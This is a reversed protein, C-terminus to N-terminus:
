CGIVHIRRTLLLDDLGVRIRLWRRRYRQDHLDRGRRRRPAGGLGLLGGLREVAHHRLLRLQVVHRQRLELHGDALRRLDASPSREATCSAAPVTCSTSASTTGAGGPGTANIACNEGGPGVPIMATGSCPVPGSAETTGGCVYDCSTANTCSWSVTAAAGCALRPGWSATCSPRPADICSVSATATAAAGGAGVAHITCREGAAGVTYPASGSCPVPGSSPSTGMCVYDCSTANTCNWTVVAPSGCAPAPGFSASCSPAPVCSVTATTATTAGGAGVANITCREGAAGVALPESGACPVAGSSPTTGTCVHTCSTANTCNWTVVAAAGCAPAPGFSASCAPPGGTAMCSVTATATGTSGDSGLANITCTEGAAGVTYPGSGSCPM